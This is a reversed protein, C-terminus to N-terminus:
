RAQNDRSPAFKALFQEVESRVHRAQNVVLHGTPPYYIAVGDGGAPSWTEAAISQQILEALELGDGAFRILGRVSYVSSRLYDSAVEDRSTIVLAEDQVVFGAGIRGLERALADALPENRAVVSVIQQGSVTDDLSARDVIVTCNLGAALRDALQDLTGGDFSWEYISRLSRNIADEIPNVTLPQGRLQSLLEEIAAHVVATQNIIFYRKLPFYEITACGGVYEWSNPAVTFQILEIRANPDPPAGLLDAVPYLRHELENGAQLQSTVVIAGNRVFSTLNLSGLVHRLASHLSMRCGRFTIPQTVKVGEDEVYQQDFYVNKIGAQAALWRVAADLPTNQFDAEEASNTTLFGPSFATVGQM